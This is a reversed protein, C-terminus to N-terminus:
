RTSLRETGIPARRAWYLSGLNGIFHFLFMPILSGCSLFILGSVAGKVAVAVTGFRYGYHVAALVIATMAVSLAASHGTARLTFISLAIWLEEAFAGVIFSVVWFVASGKRVMYVFPHHPDAPLNIMRQVAVLLTGATVGIAVNSKWGELILGVLASPVSARRMLLWVLGFIIADGTFNAYHSFVTAKERVNEPMPELPSGRRGLHFTWLFEPPNFLSSLLFALPFILLV